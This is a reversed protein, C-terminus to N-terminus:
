ISLLFQQADNETKGSAAAIDTLTEDPSTVTYGGDTLATTFDDTSMDFIPAVEAIPQSLILAAIAFQAPRGGGNPGGETTPQLLFFSASVAAIALSIMMPAHKFYNKVPRWNRWLHLVFPVVLVLGLIEHMSHFSRPGVDFYMAVGTIISILFFGFILPTAYRMFLQKM